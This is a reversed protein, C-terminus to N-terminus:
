IGYFEELGYKEKLEKLKRNQFFNIQGKKDIANNIKILDKADKYEYLDEGLSDGDLFLILEPESSLEIGEVYRVQNNTIISPGTTEIFCYGTEGVGYKEHCKIGLAEHNELAHYFFVIGYGIERLLFALLESKEGCVGQMEYLAEYPYRSYSINQNPWISITKNSNGFPIKQVISVTIRMQDLKNEASNQIETVLPLLLERQEKEDLNRIKFDGRSPNEGNDSYISDPLTSIYNVMGEYVTYNIEKKEGRLIYGLSINKPNTQYKSICLEEQEKLIDPCGCVSAKEVLIGELCFYPKRLSCTEYLTGDGCTPVKKSYNEKAFNFFYIGSIILIFAISIIIILNKKSIQKVKKKPM